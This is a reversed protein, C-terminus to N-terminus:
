STTCAVHLDQVQPQFHAGAGWIGPDWGRQIGARGTRASGSWSRIWTKPPDASRWWSTSWARRSSWWTAGSSSSASCSPSRCCACCRSRCWACWSFSASRRRWMPAGATAPWWAAPATAPSRPWLEPSRRAGTSCRARCPWTSSPSTWQKWNIVSNFVRSWEVRAPLVFVQLGPFFSQTMHSNLGFYLFYLFFLHRWLGPTNDFVNLTNCLELAYHGCGAWRVTIGGGTSFCLPRM